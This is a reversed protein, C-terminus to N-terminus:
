YYDGCVVTKLTKGNLKPVLVYKIISNLMLCPGSAKLLVVVVYKKNVQYVKLNCVPEGCGHTSLAILVLDYNEFDVDLSYNDCNPHPSWNRNHFKLFDHKNNFIQVYDNKRITCGFTGATCDVVRSNLYLASDCEKNIIIEQANQAWVAANFLLFILSYKM